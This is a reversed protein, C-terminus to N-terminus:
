QTHSCKYCGRYMLGTLSLHEYCIKYCESNLELESLLHKEQLNSKNVYSKSHPGVTESAVEKSSSDLINSKLLEQNYLLEAIECVTNRINDDLINEDIRNSTYYNVKSSAKLSYKKFSSDPISSGEYTKSYYEYNVLETLM